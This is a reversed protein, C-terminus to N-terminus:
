EFSAWKGVSSHNNNGSNDVDTTADTKPNPRKNVSMRQFSESFDSLLAHERDMPKSGEQSTDSKRLFQDSQSLDNQFQGSPQKAQRTPDASTGFQLHQSQAIMRQNLMLDSHVGLLHGIDQQAGSIPQQRM